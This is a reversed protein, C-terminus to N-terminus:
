GSRRGRDGSWATAAVAAYFAALRRDRESSRFAHARERNARGMAVRRAPDAALDDIAGALGRPDDVAVLASPPLLEPVGGVPTALCPLGLTMAEILSRPLGETRSPLVFLDAAALSAFVHEPSIAGLFRVRDGLGLQLASASLAPLLSGGGIVTLRHPSQTRALAALLVDLGKYARALSGVFVLSLFEGRSIEVPPRTFLGDPLVLDSAGITFATPSPPYREQLTRETVFRSAVAGAVQARLVQRAVRSLRGLAADAAVLSEAPDGVVEIAYPRRLSRAAAYVTTAVLGPARLLVAESGRVAAFARVVMAAGRWSLGGRGVFDPVLSFRVRPGDARAHHPGPVGVAGRAVVTVEAFQDLMGRWFSYPYSADTFVGDPTDLFHYESSVTV